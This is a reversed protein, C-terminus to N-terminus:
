SLREIRWSGPDDARRYQEAALPELREVGQVLLELPVGTLDDSPDRERVLRALEEAAERPTYRIRVTQWGDAPQRTLPDFREGRMIAYVRTPANM